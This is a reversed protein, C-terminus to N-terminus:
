RSGALMSQRIDDAPGPTERLEPGPKPEPLRIGAGPTVLRSWLALYKGALRAVYEPCEDAKLFLHLTDSGARYVLWTSPKHQLGSELHLVLREILSDSLQSRFLVHCRFDRLLFVAGGEAQSFSILENLRFEQVRHLYMSDDTSASANLSPWVEDIDIDLAGLIRFLHDLNIRCQGAEMSAYSSLPTQLTTALETMKIGRLLRIQRIRRRIHDNVCRPAISM